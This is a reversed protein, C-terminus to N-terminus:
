QIQGFRAVESEPEVSEPPPAFIEGSAEGAIKTVHPENGTTTRPVGELPDYTYTRLRECTQSLYNLEAEGLSSIPPLATPRLRSTKV